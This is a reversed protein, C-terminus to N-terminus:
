EKEHDKEMKKNNESKTQHKYTRKRIPNTRTEKKVLVADITFPKVGKGRLDSIRKPCQSQAILYNKAAELEDYLFKKNEHFKVVLEPYDLESFTKKWEEKLFEITEIIAEISECASLNKKTKSGNRYYLDLHLFGHSRDCRIIPSWKERIKTEIQIMPEIKENRKVIM